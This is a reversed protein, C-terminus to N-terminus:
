GQALRCGAFGTLHVTVCGIVSLPTQTLLRAGLLNVDLTHRFDDLTYELLPQCMDDGSANVVVELQGQTSLWHV